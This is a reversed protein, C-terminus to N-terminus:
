SKPTLVDNAVKGQIETIIGPLKHVEDAFVQLPQQSSLEASVLGNEDEVVFFPVIQVKVLKISKNM